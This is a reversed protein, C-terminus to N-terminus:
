QGTRQWRAGTRTYLTQYVFRRRNYIRVTEDDRQNLCEAAILQFSRGYSIRSQSETLTKFTFKLSM